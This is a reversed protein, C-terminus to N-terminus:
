RTGVILDFFNAIPLQGLHQQIEALVQLEVIGRIGGSDSDTKPLEFLTIHLKGM